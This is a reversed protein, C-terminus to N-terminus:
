LYNNLKQWISLGKPSGLSSLTSCSVNWPPLCVGLLWTYGCTYGCMCVHICMHVYMYMCTCQPAAPHRYTPGRQFVWKFWSGPSALAQTWLFPFRFVGVGSRLALAPGPEGPVGPWPGPLSCGLMTVVTSELIAMRCMDQCSSIQSAETLHHPTPRGATAPSPMDRNQGLTLVCPPSAKQLGVSPHGPSM